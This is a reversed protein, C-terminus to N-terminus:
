RGDRLPNRLTAEKNPNGVTHSPSLSAFLALAMISPCIRKSSGSETGSSGEEASSVHFGMTPPWNFVMSGVHPISFGGKKLHSIKSLQMGGQRLECVPRTSCEENKRKEAVLDGRMEAQVEKQTSTQFKLNGSVSEHRLAPEM